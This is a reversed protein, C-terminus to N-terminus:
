IVTSRLLDFPELPPLGLFSSVWALGSFGTPKKSGLFAASLELASEAAFQDKDPGQTIKIRLENAFFWAGLILGLIAAIGFAYLLTKKQM